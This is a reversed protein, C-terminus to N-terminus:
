SWLYVSFRWRSIGNGKAEPNRCMLNKPSVCVDLAWCYVYICVWLFRLFIHVDTQNPVERLFIRQHCTLVLLTTWCWQENPSICFCKFFVQTLCEWLDLWEMELEGLSIFAFTFWLILLAIKKKLSYSKTLCIRRYSNLSYCQFIYMVMHLVSLWLSNAIHHQSSLGLSLKSPHPPTPPPFSTWAPPSMHIGSASEHRHICFGVCHQLAIIRWNFFLYVKSM